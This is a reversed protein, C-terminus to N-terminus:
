LYVIKIGLLKAEEHEWKAGMSTEWLPMFYFVKILGSEFIPLYFENLLQLGGQYWKALTFKYLKEEFPIQDFIIKGDYRLCHIAKLFAEINKERSGLGGSTIPGCVEGVPQPMRAIVRLAVKSLDSFNKALKLDCADKKTWYQNPLKIASRRQLGSCM